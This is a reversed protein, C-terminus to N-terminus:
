RNRFNQRLVVVYCGTFWFALLLIGWQDPWTSIMWAPQGALGILAGWFRRQANRASLGAIGIASTILIVIQMM